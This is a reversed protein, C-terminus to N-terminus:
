IEDRNISLTVKETNNIIDRIVTDFEVSSDYIYTMADLKEKDTIAHNKLLDILGMIRALPARVVHSQIWAIEQLKQNQKEIAEVYNKLRIEARKSETVDQMAGVMRIAKASADRIVFGNDLVYAFSGDAKLYRYEDKWNTGSSEIFAYIGQEVRKQDAPHLFDIWSSIDSDKGPSQKHGFNTEFGEGWFLSGTVLDWDWIADSTAKTVYRYRENSEKVLNLTNIRETVDRSNAVIGVVAPDDRLDTLITEIWRWDGNNHAFRFPSVYMKREAPLKSFVSRVHERDEPHIFDFASKGLFADPPMQLINLSSPSVYLYVGEKDLIAIMDSADQVLSRFKQESLQIQREAQKRETADRAICYMIQEKADWRASWIVPMLSGNKCLYRNEFNTMEVGNMIDAAAQNTKAVDDPHVLSIYPKHILEDLTYGWTKEAAANLNIFRGEKDITCIIDLSSNMIKNLEDKAKELIALNETEQTMNKSYCAVGFVQNNANRMPNFSVLGYEMRQQLPDFVQEKVSFQEGSLARSYYSKWKLTAEEGFESVFVSDGETLTRMTAIKMMELYAKNATIIQFSNDISWILDATGNILAEQNTKSRKLEAAQTAPLTVDVVTSIMLNRDLLPINKANVIRTEGTSTTIRINEWNMRSPDGSRIDTMIRLEMEERYKKDPYVKMFFNHIDTLDSGSWGYTEGFFKNLFTASGDSIQNVAIGIPLNELIVEIFANRSHLKELTDSLAKERDSQLAEKNELESLQHVIYDVRGTDSKVPFHAVHLLTERKENAENTEVHCYQVPVRHLNGEKQVFSLSNKLADQFGSAGHLSEYLTFIDKGLLEKRQTKKFSLFAENVDDIVFRTDSLRLLISPVPSSDFIKKFVPLDEM